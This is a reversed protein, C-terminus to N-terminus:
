WYHAFFVTIVTVVATAVTIIMISNFFRHARARLEFGLVGRAFESAPVDRLVLYSDGYQVCRIVGRHDNM